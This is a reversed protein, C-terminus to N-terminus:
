NKVAIMMVTHAFFPFRDNLWRMRGQLRNSAAQVPIPLRRWTYTLAHTSVASGHKSLRKQLALPSLAVDDNTGHVYLDLRLAHAVNMLAGIPHWSNPEVLVLAGGRRLVRRCEDLGETLLNRPSVLHHLVLRLYVIDVAESPIPLSTISGKLIGNYIKKEALIRLSEENLDIGYIEYSEEPFLTRETGHRGCGVNLVTGRPILPFVRDQVLASENAWLNTAFYNFRDVSSFRDLLNDEKEIPTGHLITKM